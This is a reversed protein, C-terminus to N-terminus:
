KKNPEKNTKQTPNSQTSSNTKEDIYALCKQGTYLLGCGTLLGVLTTICNSRTTVTRLVAWILVSGFNFMVAGFGSYMMRMHPTAGHLHPRNYIYLASGLVSHALLVNTVDRNPFIRMILGPNMVNVSLTAYNAMGIMPAYHFALNAPTIPKLPIVKCLTCDKKEEVSDTM